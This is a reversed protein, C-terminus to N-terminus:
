ATSRTPPRLTHDPSASLSNAVADLAVAVPDRHVTVRAIIRAAQADDVFPLWLRAAAVLREDDALATGRAAAALARTRLATWDDDTTIWGVSRALGSAAAHEWAAGRPGRVALPTWWAAPRHGRRLQFPGSLAASWREGAAADGAQRLALAALTGDLLRVWGPESAPVGLLSTSADARFAAMADPELHGVLSLTARVHAHDVRLPDGGFRGRAAIGIRRSRTRWATVDAPDVAVASTTSLAAIATARCRDLAPVAPEARLARRRGVPSRRWALRVWSLGGMVIIVLPFEHAAAAVQRPGVPHDDYALAASLAMSAVLVAVVSWDMGWRMWAVTAVVAAVTLAVGLLLHRHDYLGAGPLILSRVAHVGRHGFGFSLATVLVGIALLGIARRRRVTDNM